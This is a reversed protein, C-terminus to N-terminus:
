FRQPAVHYDQAAYPASRWAAARSRPTSPRSCGSVLAATPSARGSEYSSIVRSLGTTGRPRRTSRSREPGGGRVDRDLLEDHALYVLKQRRRWPFAGRRLPRRRLLHARLRRTGSRAAEASPQAGAATAGNAEAMKLFAVADENAEDIVLVARGKEAVEDWRRATVAEDAEDLLANIRRQIRDSPM